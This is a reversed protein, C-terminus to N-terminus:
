ILYTHLLTFLAPQTDFHERPHVWNGKNTKVEPLEVFTVIFSFDSVFSLQKHDRSEREEESSTEEFLLHSLFSSHFTSASITTDSNPFDKGEEGEYVFAPAILEFTFLLISFFKLVKCSRLSM